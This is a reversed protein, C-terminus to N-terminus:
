GARDGAAALALMLKKTPGSSLPDSRALKRRWTVEQARDGAKTSQEALIEAASQYERLMRTREVDIWAELERSDGFHFGDLLPGKYLDAAAEWQKAGIMAELEWADVRVFNPNLKLDQGASLIVEGGLTHRIGYVAQDLAHRARAATSEPWLYAEMRNRSLGQRGGLALIALLGLRRKQQAAPPVPGADDRLSLTGLLELVLMQRRQSRQSKQTLKQHPRAEIM